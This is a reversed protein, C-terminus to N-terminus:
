LAPAYGCFARGCAKAPIKVEHQPSEHCEWENDECILDGLRTGLIASFLKVPVNSESFVGYSDVIHNIYAELISTNNISSSSEDAPMLFLAGRKRQFELENMNEISLEKTDMVKFM